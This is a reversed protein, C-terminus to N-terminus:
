LFPVFFILLFDLNEKSFLVIINIEKEQNYGHLSVTTIGKSLGQMMKSPSPLALVIM